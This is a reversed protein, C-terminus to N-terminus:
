PNRQIPQRNMLDREQVSSYWRNAIALCFSFGLCLTSLLSPSVTRNTSVLHGVHHVLAQFLKRRQVRRAVAVPERRRRLVQHHRRAAFEDLAVPARGVVLRGGDVVDGDEDDRQGEVLVLVLGPAFAEVLLAGEVGVTGM